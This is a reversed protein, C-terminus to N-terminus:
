QEQNKGVPVPMSAGTSFEDPLRIPKITRTTPSLFDIVAREFQEPQDLMVFHYSGDIRQFSVQPTAAYASQFTADVNGVPIGYSTDYAYIVHVPVTIRSLEPRLDSTMLEYTANAVTQRDSRLSAALLSPRATETKALRALSTTQMAEMQADTATLLTDRFAAAGPTAKESTASPDLLLSYFPLADVIMLRSVREPHRASLMLAAEGGLSHGIIAPAQLHEREIYDAVAEATPGIVPGQPDHAAPAGAFGAVQVLHLRHSQQLRAALGRWIDRSSALGPILIVDPGSGEVVVSIRDRTTPAKQATASQALVPSTLSFTLGFAVLWATFRM